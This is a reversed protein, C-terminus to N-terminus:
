RGFFHAELRACLAHYLPLHLQQVKYTETEPVDMLCDALQGLRGGGKGTLAIVSLGRAKATQAALCCNRANGSTSIALLVDGPRGLGLVQQAYILRADTDNVLASALAPHGTLAVAPLAGQLKSLLADPVGGDFVQDAVPRPLLFGKMLEGVIHECDAASGGNGCLLLKGGSEFCDRIMEYARDYAARCRDPVGEYCDM